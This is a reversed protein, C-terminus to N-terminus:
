KYHKDFVETSANKMSTAKVSEIIDSVNEVTKGCNSLFNIVTTNM